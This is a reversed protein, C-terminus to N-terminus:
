SALKALKALERRLEKIGRHLNKASLQRTSAESRPNFEKEEGEYL